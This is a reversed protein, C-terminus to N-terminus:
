NYLDGFSLRLSLFVIKTLMSVGFIIMISLILKRETLYFAPFHRRLLVVLRTGVFLLCLLGLSYIAVLFTNYVMLYEHGLGTNALMLIMLLFGFCFILLNLVNFGANLRKVSRNYAAPNQRAKLQAHALFLFKVWGSFTIIFAM